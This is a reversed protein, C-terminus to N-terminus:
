LNIANRKFFGIKMSYQCGPPMTVKKISGDKYKVYIYFSLQNLSLDSQLRYRRYPMISADTSFILDGMPNETNIVFDQIIQQQIFDNYFESEVGLANAIILINTVNNLRYISSNFQNFILSSYGNITKQASNPTISSYIPHTLPSNPYLIEYVKFDPVFRHNNGTLAVMRFLKPSLAVKMNNVPYQQQYFLELKNSTNIGFVAPSSPVNALEIVELQAVINGTIKKATTSNSANVISLYWSGGSSATGFTLFSEAPYFINVGSDDSLYAGKYVSCFGYEAFTCIQTLQNFEPQSPSTSVVLCETNSNGLIVSFPESPSSLSIQLTLKVSCVRTEFANPTYTSFNIINSVSTDFSTYKSMNHYGYSSEYSITQSIDYVMQYYSYALARNMGELIDNASKYTNPYDNTLAPNTIASLPLNALKIARTLKTDTNNVKSEYTYGVQYDNVNSSTINLLDITDSPIVLRVISLEYDNQKELISKSFVNSFSCEINMDEEYIANSILGTDNNVVANFFLVDSM